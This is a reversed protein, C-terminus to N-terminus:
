ASVPYQIADLHQYDLVKVHESRYPWGEGNFLEPEALSLRPAELPSRHLQEEVLSAQDAYIHADGFSYALRGPKLGTQQALMHTLLAYSALNYPVGVPLDASRQHTYLDLHADGRVYAQIVTGHCPRIYGHKLQYRVYAPVWLTAVHGSDYPSQRLGEVLQHLQDVGLADGRWAMGYSAGIFDADLLDTRRAHIQGKTWPRWIKQLLRTSTGTRCSGSLFWLLEDVAFAWPIYRTTVLPFEAELDIRIPDPAFISIRDGNRYTRREGETMVHFMLALYQHEWTM